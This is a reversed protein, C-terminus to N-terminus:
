DKRTTSKFFFHSLFYCNKLYLVNVMVIDFVIFLSFCCFKGFNNISRMLVYCIYINYLNEYVSLRNKIAVEIFDNAILKLSIFCDICRETIKGFFLFYYNCCLASSINFFWVYWYKRIPLKQHLWKKRWNYNIGADSKNLQSTNTSSLDLSLSFWDNHLANTHLVWVNM